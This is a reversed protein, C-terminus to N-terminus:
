CDANGMPLFVRYPEHGHTETFTDVIFLATDDDNHNPTTM